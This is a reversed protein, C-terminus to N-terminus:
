MTEVLARAFNGQACRTEARYAHSGPNERGSGSAGAGIQGASRLGGRGLHGSSSLMADGVISSLDTDVGYGVSEDPSVLVCSSFRAVLQSRVRDPIPSERFVQSEGRKERREEGRRVNTNNNTARGRSVGPSTITRRRKNHRPVRVHGEPSSRIAEKTRRRCLESHGQRHAQLRAQADKPSAVPWCIRVACSCETFIDRGGTCRHFVRRCIRRPWSDCGSIGAAGACKPTLEVVCWLCCRPRRCGVEQPSRRAPHHSGKVCVGRPIRYKHRRKGLGHGRVVRRECTDELQEEYKRTAKPYM